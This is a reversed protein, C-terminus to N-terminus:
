SDSTKIAIFGTKESRLNIDLVQTHESYNVLVLCNSQLYTVSKVYVAIYYDRGTEVKFKV